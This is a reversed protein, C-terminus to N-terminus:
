RRKPDYEAHIHDILRNTRHPEFFVDYDQGLRRQVLKGLSDAQNDTIDNGRYDLARGKYHLSTEKHTGDRGATIVRPPLRLDQAAAAIEGITPIMVSDLNGIDAGDKRGVGYYGLARNATTPLVAKGGLTVEFRHRGPLGAIDYKLKKGAVARGASGIVRRARPVIGASVEGGGGPRGDAPARLPTLHVEDRGPRFPARELVARARGGTPLGAEFDNKRAEDDPLVFSELTVIGRHRPDARKISPKQTPM